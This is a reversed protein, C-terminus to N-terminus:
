AGQTRLGDLVTVASQGRNALGMPIHSSRGLASGRLTRKPPSRPMTENLPKRELTRLGGSPRRVTSKERARARTGDRPHSQRSIDVTRSSRPGAHSRRPRSSRLRAASWRPVEDARSSHGLGALDHGHANHHVIGVAVHVRLTLNRPRSHSLDIMRGWLVVARAVGCDASPVSRTTGFNSNDRAVCGRPDHVFEVSGDLLPTSYM